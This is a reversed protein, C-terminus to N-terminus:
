SIGLRFVVSMRAAPGAAATNLVSFYTAGNPIDFGLPQNGAIVFNGVNNGGLAGDPSQWFRLVASTQVPADAPDSGVVYATRAFRPIAFVSSEAGPAIAGVYATNQAVGPRAIGPGVFAALEYVASTGAIDLRAGAIVAADVRL